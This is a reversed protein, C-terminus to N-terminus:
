YIPKFLSIRRNAIGLIRLLIETGNNPVISVAKIPLSDGIWIAATPTPPIIKLKMYQFKPNKRIPVVPM